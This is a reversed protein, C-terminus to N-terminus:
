RHWVPPPHPPSPLLFPPPQTPTPTDSLEMQIPIIGTPSEERGRERANRPPKQAWADSRVLLSLSIAAHLLYIDFHQWLSSCVSSVGMVLGGSGHRSGGGWQPARYPFITKVACNTFTSINLNARRSNLMAGRPQPSTYHCKNLLKYFTVCLIKACVCMLCNEEM